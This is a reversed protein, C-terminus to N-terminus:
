KVGAKERRLRHIRANPGEVFMGRRKFFEDCAMSLKRLDSTTVGLKPPHEAISFHQPRHKM